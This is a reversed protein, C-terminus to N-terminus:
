DEPPAMRDDLLLQLLVLEQWRGFKAGIEPMRAVQVFGLREHFRISAENSGDVAAIMAHKDGRRARDVLAGMLARGIGSGWQDERVHITNEVTFRYGPRKVVDRFWGFAAVGVVEGREEAVMVIEHDDLWELISEATQPTETWEITTTALHANLLSAIVEADATIAPRVIMGFNEWFWSSVEVLWQVARPNV